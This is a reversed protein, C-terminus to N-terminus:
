AAASRRGSCPTATKGSASLFYDPNGFLVFNPTRAPDHSIMHLLAMEARDALAQTINNDGGIIPDYGRLAAAQRELARTLASTQSPDGNIYSANPDSIGYPQVYQM